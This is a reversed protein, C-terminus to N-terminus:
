SGLQSDIFAFMDDDSGTDLQEAAVATAPALRALLERLRGALRDRAVDDLADAGSEVRELDTFATLVPDPVTGTLERDLHRALAEPAPHDFVVTPSLTVATTAHLRNRLEVATLSDFGQERFPKEVDVSDGDALGLVLAAQGRVIKLLTDHREEPSLAGIRDALGVEAPAAAARRVKRHVLTSLLPRPDDQDAVEVRAPVLAPEGGALAADLLALGDADSLPRLGQRAMRQWDTETLGGAMGDASRWPGWALATAPLGRGRRHAALADLYANAAAYNGQGPNGWIGAVSSFLVFADLDAQETLEHLVRAGDAKPRLVGAIREPTLAGVAADDLVGATHVVAKLPATEPIAALVAGLAARDAVDCATVRVGAGSGALQAVTTALGPSGAGRRSALVFDRDPGALHNAVLRGLAGSAGTVLVTSRPRKPAPVTLAVKGINRGQSLHRFAEAAQRVDWCTVPLPTLTGDAFLPSLEALIPGMGDVGTELLDFAHYATGPLDRVDTKGMEVFRGGPALLRLSADVFEGALANLVVDVGRGDTAARFRDEFDLTRSSAVGALGTLVSWKGPSATGYVHAGRHRALQVAAQGVGGAAAHVLASEGEALGALGFLGHHATAFAIPASAAEAWSWGDPVPILLRADTVAAPSYAGAFIGMVADGPRFRDDATELVTGAAELGLPGAPGPYMGLVTLVDRFNVGAARVGVRVEGPALPRTARESPTLALSELTGIREATLEWSDDPISLGPKARVLRPVRLEGGRVAFEPEDSAAGAVLLGGQDLSDVDSLAFRGPNEAAAVRLLGWAPAADPRVPAGPGADVARETVVLLRAPALTEEALWSQVLTLVDVAGAVPTEPTPCRVVAVPPVPTGARVAEALAAVDAYRTVDGPLALDPGLLAWGEAAAIDKGAPVWDLRFLAERVVANEAGAFPRLVLSAATVIPAGTEDALTVSVADGDAPAIRVRAVAAGEAHVTVDSWAFPVRTGGHPQLAVLTHLAADFLAPHVSFDGSVGSPLAVEAFIEDGRQWAARVGQFTPGYELGNAALAPYFGDLEVPIADRPPWVTLEPAAPREDATLEGTAHRIWEGAGRSHLTLTRRGDGPASLTLQVQVPGHDPVVLPQEVLLEALHACGAEAGAHLAMEVLATGPVIPTGAVVHDALWPHSQLSLRGTFVLEGSGAVDLADGLLPGTADALWYRTRQFSTTPLDVRRGGPHLARWDVHGGRVHLGALATVVTVPEERDRRLLPLWAEGDRQDAMPTLAADPGVEVFTRVGHERLADVADAFRVAERVHRVWYDPERVDGPRGTVLPLQPERFTLSSAVERFEALMPEMLPSHFAHSVTLRKSRVEGLADVTALVAAEEGSVVVSRAGNVSAIAAGDVLAAVVDDERAAVAVMAGGRPLAQMLRGRAEVLRCADHLSWVGAVYAAALEGISHGAVYDPEVGWSKLLAVLAVEVAFLGPQTWRTEHIADTELAEALGDFEAVVADFIEAFVPYAGHLEFGMRIRQAGQGSFLFATKGATGAVGDIRSSGILVARHDSTSRTAALSWGVDVPHAAVNGLLAVQADLAAPSHASVPWAPVPVPQPAPLEEAVPAQELIVHANTGSIGFSSVGARRPRGHDPWPTPEVVLRVADTWDVHTTPAGAHLTPPVVGHRLASIVKLVGTVGAAAQTHGLNSKVTGLLVPDTRGPGYAAILAEAEIPDGLRTGTGHAEVVDVDAPALGAVELAARIVRQQALGNPATLGHSAGDSNTATGRIVALVQHGHRRADSLRELAIMGAGEAMGMGDATDSFAKCRGDSALGGQETFWTLWEPTAHLTVGGALALECEGAHLAQVALHLAVLSSSCATDVTIAPGALGLTYSIRGSLVSSSLGTMLHGSRDAGAYGSTFAGAFVGVEAGRVSDPAIGARELAEWSVELLVRQQPDMALAERPSIGFLGADFDAIGSVFGGGTGDLTGLDWGRDAPYAGVVDRGASVVDWLDEIGTVGGPLRCATGVIAIPEGSVERVRTRVEGAGGLYGALEAPTPRDFVVGAPLTRGTAAALRTRLEVATVSDIGLQKFTHGEPLAAPDPHGLVAATHARVLALLDTTGVPAAAEATEATAVTEAILDTSATVATAATGTSAATGATGPNGTEDLWYRQRQFPYTPLNVQRAAPFVARWDVTAGGVHATALSLLLREAGGDDRRLTGTVVGDGITATVAATLVPHPSTEIFVRHGDDALVRVAREFEVPERLATYWYEADAEPGALREGTLSSIMPIRAERPTIGALAALIEERLEGVQPSHSAYDVPITRTRVESHADALDQLAEPVGSVVTSLPGNVAAVSVDPPLWRRVVDADAEIALMGGRGALATLARSRLAVVRAADDLSLVGAVVAAAIEGQSHGVVADPQVGAAEWVAALSVMVAWLAPQVVDAAEFGEAGDLVTHLDLYPALAAACEDLRAAFGPSVRALERSMGLWQSGQGPFVFAVPGDTATGTVLSAAPLGATLASLGSELAGVVVARDEFVARTTALSWATDRADAEVARLREAQAALAATGRGSFPWAVPGETLVPQHSVSNSINPAEEVVVHVNTGGIGFGSVGARRPQAGAPWAVAEMALRVAGSVIPDTVHLTRPVTEHRLALVMKIVAAVGAAALTHGLNSKVSGLWVPRDRGVGYAALLSGAETRDGLPTGTGHAEVVDIDSAALEADRLAARIVAQQAAGDPATLGSSAGDSNMASGRLVALVPHGLERARSLTEVALMGAGEAWATGDADASFPKCRGDVALGRLSTFAAFNGPSALVSVGGAIALECEGRRLSAMALHLAVLSSSASTDVTLAPGRLGLTYAIRGSLVSGATGTFLHGAVSEPAEHLRPGYDRSEAGVFVGTASGRLGAADIGAHELVEWATELAIRQQPDMAAAERPSIGFFAADFETAHDLFGGRDVISDLAALDWGRDAPFPGGVHRGEALVRWLDEPGDVGGPYRCSMGVIALPQMSGM